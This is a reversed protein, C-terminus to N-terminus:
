RSKRRARERRSGERLAAPTRYKETSRHAGRVQGILGGVVAGILAGPETGSGGRGSLAGLVGGGVGGVLGGGVSGVLSGLLAGSGGRIFGEGPQGLRGGEAAGGIAPGILPAGLVSGVAAGIAAYPTGPDEHAATKKKAQLHALYDDHAAIDSHSEAMGQALLGARGKRVDAVDGRYIVPLLLHRTFGAAKVAVHQPTGLDNQAKEEEPTARRGASDVGMAARPWAPPSAEGTNVNGVYAVNGTGPLETPAASAFKDIGLVTELEAITLHDLNESATKAQEDAAYMGHLFANLDTM